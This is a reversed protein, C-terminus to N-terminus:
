CSLANGFSMNYQFLATLNRHIARRQRLLEIEYILVSLLLNYSMKLVNELSCKIFGRLALEVSSFIEQLSLTQFVKTFDINFSQIFKSPKFYSLNPTNM